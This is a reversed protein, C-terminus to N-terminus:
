LDAFLFGSFYVAPSIPTKRQFLQRTMQGAAGYPGQVIRIGRWKIKGKTIEGKIPPVAVTRLAEIFIKGENQIYALRADKIIQSLIREVQLLEDSKFIDHKISSVKLKNM